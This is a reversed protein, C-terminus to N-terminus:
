FQRISVDWEDDPIVAESDIEIMAGDRVLDEVEILTSAPHHEREFFEGRVRHIEEFKEETLDTVYVRVRVIDDMTGDFESLVATLDELVTRTQAAIDDKYLVQGADDIPVLGSVFVRRHDPHDIAVAKSHVQEQVESEALHNQDGMGPNLVHKRM